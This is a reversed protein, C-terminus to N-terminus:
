LLLELTHHMGNAVICSSCRVGIFIALARYALTAIPRNTYKMPPMLPRAVKFDTTIYLKFPCVYYKGNEMTRLLQIYRGGIESCFPCIM